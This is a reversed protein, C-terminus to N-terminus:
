EAVDAVVTYADRYFVPKGPTHEIMRGGSIRVLHGHETLLQIARTLIPAPRLSTPAANLSLWRKGVEKVGKKRIWAILQDANETDVDASGLGIVRLAEDAHFKAITIGAALARASIETLKPDQFYAMVAAIRCAHEPLKAAFGAINSYAGDPGLEHEVADHWAAWMEQADPALPIKRPKLERTEENMPMPDSLLQYVRANFARLVADSNAQAPRYFRTGKTTIPQVILIRSLLGQDKLDEDGFLRRAIRHQVMLHVTLRRGRLITVAESGRVRKIPGGDWLKSLAAGTQGRNEESMAYGGLWQGGEDSFLGLSPLADAYLKQLGQLTGEDSTLLPMPPALPEPGCAELADRIADRGKGQMAKKKASQFATNEILFGANKQLWDDHMDRERARVAYMALKDSSSKREGSAAISCLFLSTPIEEGTPLEIDIYPQVCLAAVALVSCAAISTPLMVKDVIAMAAAQLKDCLADIPYEGPDAVSPKIPIPQPAAGEAEDLQDEFMGSM